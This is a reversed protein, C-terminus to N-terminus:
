VTLYPLKQCSSHLVTANSYAIKNGIIHGQTCLTDINLFLYFQSLKLKRVKNRGDMKNASSHNKHATLLRRHSQSHQTTEDLLQNCGIRLIWKLIMGGNGDADEFHEGEETSECLSKKHM